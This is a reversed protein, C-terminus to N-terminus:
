EVNLSQKIDFKDNILYEIGGELGYMVYHKVM